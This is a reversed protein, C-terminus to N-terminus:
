EYWYCTGRMELSIRAPANDGVLPNDFAGHPMLQAANEDSESTKFILAEDRTMDSFYYWKHAPNQAILYNDFRWETGGPPDFIAECLILDDWDVSNWACLALPVDQPPDSLVRWVNYQGSRLITKDKPATSTRFGVAGEKSMDVHAFRAPHSNDHAENEGLRESFRLIGHPSMAVHDCGTAQQLIDAVEDAHTESVAKMDTLDPVASTHSVLVFGEADLHTDMGRADAINVKQPALPVFDKEHANAYFFPKRETRQSYGIPARLDAM